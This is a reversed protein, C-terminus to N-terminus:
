DDDPLLAAFLTAMERVKPLSLSPINDLKATFRVNSVGPPLPQPITPMQDPTFFRLENRAAQLNFRLSEAERWGQGLSETVIGVVRDHLEQMGVTTQQLSEVLDNISSGDPDAKLLMSAIVTVGPHISGLQDLIFEHERFPKSCSKVELRVFGNSFDHLEHPNSHWALIADQPNASWSLLALEAWLGQVSRSGPKQLARFLSILRELAKTFQEEDDTNKDDLILTQVIRFFYGVLQADHTKCDLLAARTTAIEAGVVEVNTPPRYEILSLVRREPAPRERRFRLLLVPYGEYSRGVRCWKSPDSEVAYSGKATPRPLAQYADLLSV